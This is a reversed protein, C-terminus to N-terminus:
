APRKDSAEAESPISLPLLTAGSGRLNFIGRVFLIVLPLVGGAIFLVDGPMRLWVLTQFLDGHIFEYSRAYWFGQDFSAILQVVGAPFVSLVLMLMLGINLSWFSIAMLRDS